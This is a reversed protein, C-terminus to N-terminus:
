LFSDQFNGILQLNAEPVSYTISTIGPNHETKVTSHSLSFGLTFHCSTAISHVAQFGQSLPPLPLWDVNLLSGFM